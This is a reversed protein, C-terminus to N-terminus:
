KSPVATSVQTPAKSHSQLCSAGFIHFFGEDLVDGVGPGVMISLFLGWVDAIVDNVLPAHICKPV